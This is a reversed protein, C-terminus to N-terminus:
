KGTKKCLFLVLNFPFNFGLKQDGGCRGVMMFVGEMATWRGNGHGGIMILQRGQV